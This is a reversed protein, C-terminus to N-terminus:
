IISSSRIFDTNHQSFFLARAGGMIRLLNDEHEYVNLKWFFFFVCVCVILPIFSWWRRKFFSFIKEM